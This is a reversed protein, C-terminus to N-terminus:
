QHGLRQEASAKDAIALANNPDLQLARTDDELAKQPEGNALHMAARSVYAQAWDPRLAIAHDLDAIAVDIRDLGSAVVAHNYWAEANRPEAQAAAAYDALAEPLQKLAIHAQARLMLAFAKNAPSLNYGANLYWTCAAVARDSDGTRCERFKDAVGDARAAACAILLAAFLHRYPM